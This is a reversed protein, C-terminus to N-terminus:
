KNELATTLRKMADEVKADRIRIYHARTVNVRSHRLIRQVTLDDCGLEFLTSALGRRFAHWGKWELGQAKFAKAVVRRGLHDLDMAERGDRGGRKSVPFMALDEVEIGEGDNEPDEIWKKRAPCAAKYEDLIARLPPVVPVWSKSAKSKPDNVHGRWQSQNVSLAEGDYDSWTLAQIEGLRLGSLAAIAVAARAPGELTPLVKNIEELVYIGPLKTQRTIRPLITDHVPNDRRFGAIVAHRFVGSIFAKVHQLTAKSLQNDQAIGSILSQVDRAHYKWLTLKAERRGRIYREYMGRYGKYTSPRLHQEATKLYWVHIFQDLTIKAIIPSSAINLELLKDEAAKRIAKATPLDRKYGLKFGRQKKGVYIRLIWISDRYLSATGHSLKITKISPTAM